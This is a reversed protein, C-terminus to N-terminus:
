AVQDFGLVDTGCIQQWGCLAACELGRQQSSSARARFCCGACDRNGGLGQDTLECLVLWQQQDDVIDLPEVHRCLGHQTKDTSSQSTARHRDHDRDAFPRVTWEQLCDIAVEGRLAHPQQRYPREADGSRM